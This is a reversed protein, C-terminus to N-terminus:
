AAAGMPKRGVGYMLAWPLIVRDGLRDIEFHRYLEHKVQERTAKVMGFLSQCYDVMQEESEFTWCFERYEETVTELGCTNFWREFDGREIFVGNHGSHTYRDVPGNLFKAIMTDALVDGVAIQGGTKLVRSAERFFPLKNDVHHLGALSGIRDFSADDVPICSIANNYFTYESSIPQAFKASPEVCVLNSRKRIKNKLGDALYGGGAPADCIVHDSEVDLLKILITREIDRAGPNIRAAANYHDGRQDFTERYNDELGRASEPQPDLKGPIQM